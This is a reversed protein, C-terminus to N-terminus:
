NIMINIEGVKTPFNGIRNYDLQNVLVISRIILRRELTHEETDKIKLISRSKRDWGIYDLLFM